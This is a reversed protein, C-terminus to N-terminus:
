LLRTLARICNIRKFKILMNVACSSMAAPLRLLTKGARCEVRGRPAAAFFDANDDHALRANSGSMVQALPPAKWDSALPVYVTDFLLGVAM